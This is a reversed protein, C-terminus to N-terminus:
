KDQKESPVLAPRFGLIIVRYDQSGRGRSAARSGDAGHNWSGGRLVRRVGSSPGLPDAGGPLENGYWDACWESVNGHMDHLGWANQKKTGVPHTKSESNENYWAVEDISGGSFPGNEGARCAYEWQAETPLCLKWGASIEGSGNVKKIFEQAADWSVNEVPLKDGKFHSPNSGMVAQWQEQTVETKAMWFAKSQTVSVQNEDDSRGDDESLSGMTFFGAPCFAYTMVIKGALLMQLTAGVRGVGIENSLKDRAEVAQQEAKAKAEAAQQEAKAKAEAAQQEAKAKAKAKAELFQKHKYNTKLGIISTVTVTLVAITVNLYVLFQNQEHKAKLGYISTVIVALVAIAVITCIFREVDACKKCTNVTIILDFQPVRCSCKKCEVVRSAIKSRLASVQRVKEDLIRRRNEEEQPKCPFGDVWSVDSSCHQCKSNRWQLAGGCWPCKRNKPINQQQNQSNIMRQRQLMAALAAQDQFDNPDYSM